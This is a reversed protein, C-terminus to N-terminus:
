LGDIMQLKFYGIALEERHSPRCFLRISIKRGIKIRREREFLGM